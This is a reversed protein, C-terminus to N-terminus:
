WESWACLNVYVRRCILSLSSQIVLSGHLLTALTCTVVFCLKVTETQRVVIVLVLMAFRSSQSYVIHTILSVEDYKWNFAANRDRDSACAAWERCLCVIAGVCEWGKWENESQWESEQERATVIKHGVLACQSICFLCMLLSWWIGTLARNSWYAPIRLPGDKHRNFSKPGHWIGYTCQFIIAFVFRM